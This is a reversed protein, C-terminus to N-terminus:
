QSDIYGFPGFLTDSYYIINNPSVRAGVQHPTKSRQDNEKPSVLFAFSCQDNQPGDRKALDDIVEQRVDQKQIDGGKIDADKDAKNQNHNGYLVSKTM